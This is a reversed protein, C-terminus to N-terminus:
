GADAGPALLIQPSPAHAKRMVLLTPVDLARFASGVASDSTVLLIQSGAGAAECLLEARAKASGATLPSWSRDSLVCPLRGFQPVLSEVLSLQLALILDDQRLADLDDFSIARDRTLWVYPGISPDDWGIEVAPDSWLRQLRASAQCLWNPRTSTATATDTEVGATAQNPLPRQLLAGILILARQEAPTLRPWTQAAPRATPCCGPRSAALQTSQERVAALQVRIEALTRDLERIQDRM